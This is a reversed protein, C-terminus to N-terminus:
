RGTSGFSGTGRDSSSLESVEEVEPVLIPMIMLQAIRDGKTIYLPINSINRLVVCLEGTYGPDIVGGSVKFGKKAMSSRDVILGLFGPEFEGAIGTHIIEGMGPLIYKDEITYIDLGCDTKYGRTPLKADQSLRKIKIKHM